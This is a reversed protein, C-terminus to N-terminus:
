IGALDAIVNFAENKFDYATGSDISRFRNEAATSKDKHASFTKGFDAYEACAIFAAWATGKVEPLISKSVNYFEQLRGRNNETRTKRKAEETIPLVEDLVKDMMASTFPVKSLGTFVNELESFYNDAMQLIRVAESLRRENTSTHRVSVKDQLGKRSLSLVARSGCHIPTFGMVLSSKGDHSATLKLYKEVKDNTGVIQLDGPMVAVVFVRQGVGEMGVSVYTAQTTSAIDDMVSFSKKNQIIRYKDGVFGLIDNTGAKYTTYSHPVIVSQACDEGEDNKTTLNVVHPQSLVEWDLGGAIIAEEATVATSVDHGLETFFNNRM